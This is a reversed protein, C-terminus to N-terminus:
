EKRLGHKKQFNYEDLLMDRIDYQPQWGLVQRAKQNNASQLMTDGPRAVDSIVRLSDIGFMDRAVSIIDNVSYCQDGGINLVDYSEKEPDFSSVLDLAKVHARAIDEVHTFSREAEGTGYLVFDEGTIIANVIAPILHTINKKRYGYRSDPDAGAVNFFRLSVGSTYANQCYSELLNEGTVKTMSYLNTPSTINDEPTNYIAKDGYVSSSSSFVINAGLVAIEKLMDQFKEINNIIYPMPYEYSNPITTEAALHIIASTAM